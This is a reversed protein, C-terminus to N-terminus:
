LSDKMRRNMKQIKRRQHVVTWTAVTVCFFFAGYALSIYYYPM